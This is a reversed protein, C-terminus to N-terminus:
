EIVITGSDHAILDNYFEARATYHWPEVWLTGIGCALAGVFYWGIFSLDLCLLRWKNGNMLRRSETICQNATMEPHDLHVFYAMSYSYAKILGPVFFLMTWLYIYLFELLGLAISRGDFHSFLDGVNVEQNGRTVNLIISMLGSMLAGVLILLAVTGAIPIMSIFNSLLLYILFSLLVMTWPKGFIRDGLSAKALDRFDKATFMASRSYNESNM